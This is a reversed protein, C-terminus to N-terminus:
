GLKALVIEVLKGVSSLGDVERSRLRVSFRQEAALVIAVMKMSNWGKIDQATMSDWLVLNEDGFAEHFIETLQRYVEERTM